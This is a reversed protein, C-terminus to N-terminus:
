WTWLVFWKIIKLNWSDSKDLVITYRLSFLPSSVLKEKVLPAFRCAYLSDNLPLTNICTNYYLM